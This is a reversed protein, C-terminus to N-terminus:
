LLRESILATLRAATNEWNLSQQYEAFSSLCLRRYSEWDSLQAAIYDCYISAGAERAFLQGNVGDRVTGPIGGIRRSLSPTGFSSAECMVCASAEAMSPLILFHAESFLRDILARNTRKDIFGLADVFPPFPQPLEPDCGVVTLTTLLGRRNLERAVEFALDGGKRRWDVGIWLLRVIDRPRANVARGVDAPTRHVEVNAGLPVVCTKSMDTGYCEVASNRAWESSFVAISCRDLARQEMEHGHQISEHALNAFWPYELNGEWTCDWFYVIPKETELYAIPMKDLSLVIDADSVTLKAGFERANARLVRPDVDPLYNKGLLRYFMRRLATDAPVHTPVPGAIELTVGPRAALANTFNLASGSWSSPHCPDWTSAYFIKM